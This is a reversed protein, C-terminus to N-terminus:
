AVGFGLDAISLLGLVETFLGNVGLYTTGLIYIFATRSIFAFILNIVKSLLGFVANKVANKTRSM